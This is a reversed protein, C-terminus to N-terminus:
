VAADLREVGFAVPFRHPVQRGRGPREAERVAGVLHHEDAAHAPDVLHIQPALNQAGEAALTTHGAGDIRDVLEGARVLLTDVERVQVGRAQVLPHGLLSRGPHRGPLLHGATAARRISYVGT